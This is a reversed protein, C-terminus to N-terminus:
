KDLVGKIFSDVVEGDSATVYNTAQTYAALLAAMETGAVDITGDANIVAAVPAPIQISAKKNATELQATISMGADVNAGSVPSGAIVGEDVLRTEFLHLETVDQYLGAFQTVLAAAAAYDAAELIFSRTTVRAFDDVLSMGLKWLGM